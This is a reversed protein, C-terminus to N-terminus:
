KFLMNNQLSGELKLLYEKRWLGSGFGGLSGNKNIVRHCPVVISIKNKGNASGIARVAKPSGAFSAQDSYSWVEGYPIAMLAHWAKKRFETGTLIVPVTFNKRKGSFYERLEEALRELVPNEPTKGGSSAFVGGLLDVTEKLRFGLTLSESFELFILGEETAAALMQGIPTIIERTYIFM